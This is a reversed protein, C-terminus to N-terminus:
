PKEPVEIVDGNRLWLDPLSQTNSIPLAFTGPVSNNNIKLTGNSSEPRDSCDVIWEHKKGTKADHRTVKVRSLDSSSLLVKQAEPQQVVFGIRAGDLSPYIPLAVKQDHTVLQVSGKLFDAISDVQAGTLGVAVDGLAHDRELVEVVDGFELPIDKSCDIGNTANLLNVMIRTENTSNQSHRTVMIKALDPFKLDGSYTGAARDRIQRLREQFSDAPQTPAQPQYFNLITELLTFQNWENTGKKFVAQSFNAAPRSVTIRDWDPLKDLAGHQRLLDALKSIAAQDSPSADKSKQRLNNLLTRGGFDRINPDAKHNLLLELVKINPVRELGWGTSWLLSSQGFGEDRLNPNAGHKLLIDVAESPLNAQVAYILPTWNMSRNGAQNISPDRVDVSAGGNLLAELINTDSLAGFLISKGETQSDNPDAKFKLLLQVMPLQKTSVAVYLPTVGRGNNAIEVDVEQKVNPNAGARLLLETSETDKANIACLLSADRKGGNPDAKADLLLKVTELSGSGAAFSLPTRGDGNEANPNAGGALLLKTIEPLGLQAAANLPTQGSKNQVNPNAGAALLMKVIKAHANVAAFRLPTNGSGDQMNVDAKNALLVEVVAQFNKNAAIHLPTQGSYFGNKSNVESGRSLLLEVMARNGAVAARNLATVEGANVDAGHDLLYTAVEIWGAAAAKGLPTIGGEGANILDPSNQIMQKIRQIEREEDTPLTTSDAPAKTVVSVLRQQFHEQSAFGMGTLNQRSLTALTKQDSFDRLVLEYQAAAENTKGQMRYCEGLRFVATAALPRDKEFQAALSQYNSIAAPLNQNAQEEFLAQQLLATLNNTEATAMVATLLFVLACLKTKM